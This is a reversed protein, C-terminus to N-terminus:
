ESLIEILLISKKLIEPSVVVFGSPTYMDYSGLYFDKSAEILNKYQEETINMQESTFEGLENKLKIQIKM